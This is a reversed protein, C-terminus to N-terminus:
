APLNTIFLTLDYILYYKTKIKKINMENDDFSVHRRNVVQMFFRVLLSAAFFTCGNVQEAQLPIGKM